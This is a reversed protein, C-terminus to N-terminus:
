AKYIMAIRIEPVKQDFDVVFGPEFDFPSGWLILILFQM